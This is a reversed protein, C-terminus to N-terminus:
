DLKVLRHRIPGDYSHYFPPHKSYYQQHWPCLEDVIIQDNDAWPYDAFRTITGDPLEKRERNCCYFFLKRNSAVIRLDEFYEAIIPPDMEQMSVINVAIDVPCERILAHNEAQIAIVSCIGNTKKFPKELARALSDINTVVDVSLGFSEEGMWLKLYWLDVMLTKTLNVLIVRNAFGSALMLATMSAFGDGIVCATTNKPLKNMSSDDMLYALTLSQRLVDLGYARNQKSTMENALKDIRNFQPLQKGKKRFRSEFLSHLLKRLGRYPTVNGGFGKLGEFGDGKFRFDSHYRQWHSSEGSDKKSIEIALYDIAKDGSYLV